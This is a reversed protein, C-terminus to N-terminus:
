GDRVRREVAACAHREDGRVDADGEGIAGPEYADLRRVLDTSRELRGGAGVAAARGEVREDHGGGHAVEPGSAGGGRLDGALGREAELELRRRVEQCLDRGSHTAPSDTRPWDEDAERGLGTPEIPRRLLEAALADVEEHRVVDRLGARPEPGGGVTDRH